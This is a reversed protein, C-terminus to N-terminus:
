PREDDEVYIRKEAVNQIKLEHGKKLLQRIGERDEAEMCARLEGIHEILQDVEAMLNDRNLLFLDCWINEDLRAVRTM